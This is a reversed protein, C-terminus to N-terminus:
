KTEKTISLELAQLEANTIELTEMCTNVLNCLERVKGNLLGVHYALREVRDKDGERFHQAAISELADIIHQSNLTQM